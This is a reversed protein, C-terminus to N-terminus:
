ALARAALYQALLVCLMAGVLAPMIGLASM